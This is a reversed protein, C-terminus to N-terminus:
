EIVAGSDWELAAKVRYAIPVARALEPQKMEVAALAVRFLRQRFPL